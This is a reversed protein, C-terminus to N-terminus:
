GGASFASAAIRRSRRQHVRTIRSALRRSTASLARPAYRALLRVFSMSRISVAVRARVTKTSSRSCSKRRSDRPAGEPNRAVQRNRFARLLMILNQPNELFDGLARDTAERLFADADSASLGEAQLVARQEDGSLRDLQLIVQGGSLEFYPRLAALDSDGLWDAVRCSIRVKGPGVAFLKEVLADVTDRDSRGRRKEDLGTLLCPATSSPGCAHGFVGAGHVYRGTVARRVNVFRIRRGRAPIASCFLTRQSVTLASIPRLQIAPSKSPTLEIRRVTRDM